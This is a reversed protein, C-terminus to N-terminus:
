AIDSGCKGSILALAQVLLSDGGAMQEMGTAKRMIGQLLDDNPFSLIITHATKINYDEQRPIGKRCEHNLRQMGDWSLQGYITFAEEQLYDKPLTIVQQKWRWDSDM